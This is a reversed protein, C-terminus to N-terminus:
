QTEDLHRFLTARYHLLESISERIDEIARHASAKEPLAAVVDPQWRRAL